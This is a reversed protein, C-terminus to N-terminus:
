NVYTGLLPIIFDYPLDIKLKKIFEMNIEM